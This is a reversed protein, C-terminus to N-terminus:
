CEAYLQNRFALPRSNPPGSDEIRETLSTAIPPVNITPSHGAGEDQRKRVSNVVGAMSPDVIDDVHALPTLTM